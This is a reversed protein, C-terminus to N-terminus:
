TPMRRASSYQSLTKILLTSDLPKTLHFDCGVAKTRKIEEAMAHATLAVIPKIYAMKRLRETAAYGDLVPMQMDMLVVDFNGTMAKQIGEVGDNAVEVEYGFKTLIRCILLQNEKSDEVLLVRSNINKQATVQNAPDKSVSAPRTSATASVTAIFTSGQELKSNALWVDGGLARALRRSLALGLGSGGYKRTTSHDAQSFPEFLKEVQDARLGLGTDVISFKLHTVKDSDFQTEARVEVSGHATFKIANGILNILIQRIRTPDSKIQSPVAQDIKLAFAIGKKAALDAFLDMVESLLNQLNFDISEIQLRGAEVKSLDLIDDIIKTLSKGNRNIIDTYEAREDPSNSDRLLESFGLIAALPTRIEHSMNALFSSKADNARQAENKAREADAYAIKLREESEELHKRALVRDTVDVAHDYVGYPKGEADNIRLYTFDYYRDELPDGQIPAVPAYVENGIFPEGTELVQTLLDFFPLGKFEPCAELFPKGELQRDPFIQQYKPNVKEFIFQPGQWFAMAAPTEQFITELKHREQRLDQADKAVQRHLDVKKTTETCVVLTGGITGDQNFIPSYGYTWYVDTIKGDRFIPVLQDENWTSGGENMVLDIQPKIIPWIEPWCEHGRQGMARPHKGVGFSPLYGDNYFQFLEPGWWIFMPHQTHFLINLAIKLATPWNDSPGLPHKTWDISRFLDGCTGGGKLIFPNKADNSDLAM